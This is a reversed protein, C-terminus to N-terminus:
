ERSGSARSQPLLAEWNQTIVLSPGDLARAIVFREGDASVDFGVVSHIAGRAETSITFLSTAPGFQPTPSLKITVAQVHGAFDLYFLEKGDRRWRVAAAGTRSILLREGTLYPADGSQFSQLYLESRGSEDSTFALWKGDPSFAPNAEHFRTHLLPVAKRGHKLDLLWVDSKAENATRPFGTNVFAVFRGDPSWDTPLQFEAVPMREEPDSQGLGRFTVRPPDGDPQSLFALTKSDPSWVPADRLAAEATLRRGSNTHVDFIWLDQEGRAGDYIATAIRQGDPSLRASKVNINAPGIAATV